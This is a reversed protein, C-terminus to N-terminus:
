WRGGTFLAVLDGSAAPHNPDAYRSQFQHAPLMTGMPDDPHKLKRRAQSTDDMYNDLWIEARGFPNKKKENNEKVTNTPRVLPASVNWAVAGSHSRLSENMGEEFDQFAKDRLQKQTIIQQVNSLISPELPKGASVRLNAMSADNDPSWVVVMCELGMPQFFEANLIGLFKNSKYRSQAEMVADTAYELGFGIMLTVPEPVGYDVFGALNIAQLYPNPLLTANFTDIFDLFTDENIGAQSLVPSYARVFGRSRDKPRRQPLIVPLTLETRQTMDVKRRRLFERAHDKSNKKSNAEQEAKNGQSVTNKDSDDQALIAENATIPPSIPNCEDKPLETTKVAEKLKKKEQNHHVIESFFGISAAAFQVLETTSNNKRDKTTIAHSVRTERAQTADEVYKSTAKLAAQRGAEAIKTAM